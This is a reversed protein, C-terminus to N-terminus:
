PQDYRCSATQRLCPPVNENLNKIKSLKKYSFSCFAKLKMAGWWPSQRHVGCVGTKLSASWASAMTGNNLSDLRWTIFEHKHRFELLQLLERETPSRRTIFIMGSSSMRKGLQVQRVSQSCLDLM